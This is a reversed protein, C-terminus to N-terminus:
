IFADSHDLNSWASAGNVDVGYCYDIWYDFDTDSLVANAVRELATASVSESIYFRAKDSSRVLWYGRKVQRQVEEAHRAAKIRALINAM